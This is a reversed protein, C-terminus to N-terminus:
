EKPEIYKEIPSIETKEKSLLTINKGKTKIIVEDGVDIQNWKDEALTYTAEGKKTTVTFMYSETKEGEREKNGLEVEGWEPNHDSGATDVTRRPIWKWIDYYYKTEYVPEDRYVPKNEYVTYTETVYRPTEHAVEEFNGNGLDVTEYTTDYGDQVLRTKEVEVSEYHDLVQDYHHVEQKKEHLNAGKPLEWDNEEVNEYHEISIQRSWDVSAIEGALNHPIVRNIISFLIFVAILGLIIKGIPRKKRVEKQPTQKWKEELAEDHEKKERQLDFYNKESDEKSSGCSHCETSEAPNLSSCFSCYWDAKRSAKAAEEESLYEHKNKIYFKVNEGRPKGCAPCDRQSGEIGKTECAPCDWYGKIIRGM